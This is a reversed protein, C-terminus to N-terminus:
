KTNTLYHIMNKLIGTNDKVLGLATNCHSCLLGRVKGTTHCHDIKADIINKFPTSCIWCSNNNQEIMAGFEDMTLGHKKLTSLRSYNPYRKKFNAKIEKMKEPNNEKWIKASKIREDRKKIYSAKNAEKIKLPNKARYEALSKNFCEKCAPALYQKQKGKRYFSYSPKSTKCQTCIKSDM